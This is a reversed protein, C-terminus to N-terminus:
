HGSKNLLNDLFKEPNSPHGIAAINITNYGLDNYKNVLNKYDSVTLFHANEAIEL